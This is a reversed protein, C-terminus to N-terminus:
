RAAAAKAASVLGDHAYHWGHPYVAIYADVDPAYVIHAAAVDGHYGDAHQVAAIYSTLTETIQM